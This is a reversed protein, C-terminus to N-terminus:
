LASAPRILIDWKPLQPHRELRKEVARRVRKGLAIGKHYVQRSLAVVPQMGKWTMRKAGERMTEVESLKTGNGHRELLGGCREIPTNKSPDPPSYLRPIPTAIHDAFQVLRHLFQTRMGHSAPGNDMNSPLWEGAAQEPAEWAKWRAALVDVICESPKYASGFLRRWQGPDEEVVGWPIDQEQGGMDQDGAPHAGQPRGGRARDGPEEGAKVRRFFAKFALDVRETVNQLVQSHAVELLPYEAKWPPLMRKIEFYSVSRQEAEWTTKRMELTKNYVWHCADLTQEWVTTQAKMPFLRHKM